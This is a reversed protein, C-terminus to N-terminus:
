ALLTGPGPQPCAAVCLSSAYEWRGPSPLPPCDWAIVSYEETIHGAGSSRLAPRAARCMSAPKARTEPPRCHRPRLDLPGHRAESRASELWDSPTTALRRHDRGFRHAPSQRCPSRRRGSWATPSCRTSTNLTCWETTSQAGKRRYCPHRFGRAKCGRPNASMAGAETADALELRSCVPVVGCSKCDHVLLAFCSANPSSLCPARRRAEAWRSGCTPARRSGTAMTDSCPGPQRLSSPNM